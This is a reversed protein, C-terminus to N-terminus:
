AELTQWDRQIETHHIDVEILGDEAQIDYHDYQMESRKVVVGKEKYGTWPCTYSVPTGNPILTTNM